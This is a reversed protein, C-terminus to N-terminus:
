RIPCVGNECGSIEQDFDEGDGAEFHQLYEPNFPVMHELRKEYEQKTIAEYPALEYANDTLQLFSVAVMNDWNDFVNQEVDKWEEPKVTITNSSNHETYNVQFDYYTKLQELASVDFKTRKVPNYVPFEIVKTTVETLKGDVVIGQGVEPLVTWGLKEVVKCLPDHANIRIRRVYYDSHAHHLGSSVGGAVLSITGEPKVTTALLPENVGLEIAYIQIERKVEAKLMQELSREQDKTFNLAEMADKWGTVSCGLLRDRKQIADWKYLELTVCTMRLGARASLTQAELLGKLDLKGDHVFGMVNLTTLNCLGRSDLLIEACPNIGQFNPRRNSAAEANLFGPEGEKVLTQFHHALQERTPKHQYYISNNSMFRHFMNPYKWIGLKATVCEEDDPDILAIEATRRVGGVVVNEGIINMIDLCHIPRLKGNEPMLAFDNSNLVRDIKEFMNRLSEHGSATGGFTNLREGKPRVNDYIISIEQINRYDKDWLMRFYFDLAQVWGEKSDGVEIIAKGSDFILSTEDQRREKEVPHYDRHNVIIGQRVSPLKEVDSKLIRFGFGTGVMLLYFADKFGEFDDIVMFSCNFNAMPYKKAVDTGGVWLTRGSLFQRLNFMNDFLKEAEEQSSKGLSCNYEVARICTEKWTERRQLEPLWRSYTRYYVFQGLPTMHKPFDPYNAIFSTTLYHGM